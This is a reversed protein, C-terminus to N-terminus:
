YSNIGQMFSYFSADACGADISLYATRGDKLQKSTQTVSSDPKFSLTVGRACAQLRPVQDLLKTNDDLHSFLQNASLNVDRDSSIALTDGFSIYSLLGVAPDTAPLVIRKEPIYMRGDTPSIVLPVRNDKASRVILEAMGINSQPISPRPNLMIYALLGLNVLTVVAIGMVVLTLRSPKFQKQKKM